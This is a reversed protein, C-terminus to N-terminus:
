DEGSDAQVEDGSEQLAGNGTTRRPDSDLILELSDILKNDEAIEQLHKEPHKGSQRIVDSLTNIGARVGKVMAPIEKTPDILERRPSTWLAEVGDVPYGMFACAELFWKFVPNNFQLNMLHSQWTAVNRSMELWGMRASSYTVDTLDNTLAEYSVGLAVAVARLHTAVYDKYFEPPSPPNAFEVSKGPPLEEIRGPEIQESLQTSSTVDAPMEIDRVFVTYAAAVKHRVLAFDEFEDLDRLRIVCPALWPVGRIQGPRDMRYVPQIDEASVRVTEFLAKTNRFDVVSANGPHERYLHYAVRKGEPNFEIGQIVINGEEAKSTLTVGSAIFDSELLQIQLPLGGPEPVVWRRRLLVEGSEPVARMGIRQLAYFNHVGEFDCASTGAWDEWLARVQLAAGENSSKIYPFIGKGVVNAPILEIGRAAYPNNRVLDRSRNRLTPLSSAIEANASSGVAKWGKTRRGKSAGEYARSKHIKELAFRACERRLATRPALFSITKDLWSAM